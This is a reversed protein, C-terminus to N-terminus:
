EEEEEEEEIIGLNKFIFEDDFWLIDNITTISPNDTIEELLMILEEEKGEEEIRSLTNLAGSWCNNKLDEFNMEQKVTITMTM